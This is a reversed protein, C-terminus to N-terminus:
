QCMIVASVKVNCSLGFNNSSKKQELFCSSVNKGSVFQLFNDM